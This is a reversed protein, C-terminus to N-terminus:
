ILIMLYSQYYSGNMKKLLVENVKGNRTKTVYFKKNEIEIAYYYGRTEAVYQIELQELNKQESCGKALFLTSLIIIFIKM